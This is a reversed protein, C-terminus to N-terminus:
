ARAVLAYETQEIRDAEADGSGRPYVIEAEYFGQILALTRAVEPFIPARHTPDVWFTKFAQVSHPNVTEVVLLGGSRSARRAQELLRELSEFPLHEVVHIATIAGLGGEPLAELYDVADGKEVALGKARAREVMGLDSDVGRAEIGADALLGLLEGRGCGLDLVPAHGRLLEVYPEVLERVREEPGRFVDEFSAYASESAEAEGAMYPRAHLEEALIQLEQVAEQLRGRAAELENLGSVLLTELERQRVLYPRLLRLLARRWARGAAGSRSPADWSLSPGESLFEAARTGPTEHRNTKLEELQPVRESLFVAARGFSQRSEIAERGRQGRERAREPDSAVERMLRAAEDLDPDAWVTGAPYPGVSDELTTLSYPVLYTSDEDM